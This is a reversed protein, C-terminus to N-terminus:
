PEKCVGYSGANSIDNIERKSLARYFIQVEDIAGRFFRGGQWGRGISIDGAWDIRSFAMQSTGLEQGDVYVRSDGSRATLAVHRWEGTPYPPLPPLIVYGADTPVVINEGASGTQFHALGWGTPSVVAMMSGPSESTRVWASITLEPVNGFGGQAEVYGDGNEANPFRFAQGVKGDTYSANHAIGSRGGSIDRLDGDGPWWHALGAPAPVCATPKVVPNASWGVAVRGIQYAGYTGGDISPANDYGGRTDITVHPPQYNWGAATEASHVTALDFPTVLAEADPNLAQTPLPTVDGLHWNVAATRYWVQRDSDNCPQMLLRSPNEFWSNLTLCLGNNTVLRGDGWAFKQSQGGNCTRMQVPENERAERADLCQNDYRAVSSMFILGRFEGASMRIESAPTLTYVQTDFFNCKRAVVLGGETVPLSELDICRVGSRSVLVTNVNLAELQAQAAARTSGGFLLIVFSLALVCKMTGPVM